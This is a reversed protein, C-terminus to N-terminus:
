RVVPGYDFAPTGSVRPIDYGEPVSTWTYHVRYNLFPLHYPPVLVGTPVPVEHIGSFDVYHDIAGAFFTLTRLPRASLPEPLIAADLQNWTQFWTAYGFLDYYVPNSPGLTRKFEEFKWVSPPSGLLDTRGPLSFVDLAPLRKVSQFYYLPSTPRYVDGLADGARQALDTFQTLSVDQNMVPAVMAGQGPLHSNWPLMFLAKRKPPLMEALADAQYQPYYVTAAHQMADFVRGQAEGMNFYIPAVGPGTVADNGQLCFTRVGFIYTCGGPLYMLNVKWHLGDCFDGPPVRPLPWYSDLYLNNEPTSTPIKGALVDPVDSRDVTTRVTAPRTDLGGLGLGLWCNVPVMSTNNLNTQARWWYRDEFRQWARRIGTAADRSESELSLPVTWEHQPCNVAGGAPARGQQQQRCIAANKQWEAQQEVNIVELIPWKGRTLVGLREDPFSFVNRRTYTPPPDNRTGTLLSPDVDQLSPMPPLVPLTPLTPTSGGWVDRVGPLAPLTPRGPLTTLGPIGQAAACAASCALTLATLARVRLPALLLSVPEPRPTPLGTDKRPTFSVSPIRLM